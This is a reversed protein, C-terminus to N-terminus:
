FLLQLNNKKIHDILIDECKKKTVGYFDPNTLKTKENIKKSNILGYVSMSSIFIIKKIIIFKNLIKKLGNCNINYMEAKSLNNSPVASACHILYDIKIKKKIIIKKKLDVKILKYNKKYSVKPKTHNYFFFVFFGKKLLFNAIHNGMFTGSGTVIVKKM